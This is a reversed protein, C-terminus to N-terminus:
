AREFRIKLGLAQAVKIITDFSPNADGSLSKYLSERGLGTDKSLQTMGRAKAIIGFVKAIFAADNPAEEICAALYAEIDEATNLHEASNWENLKISM